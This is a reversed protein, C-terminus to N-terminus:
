RCRARTTAPEATTAPKATTADTDKKDKKDCSAFAFVTLVLCLVLALIVSLKKM